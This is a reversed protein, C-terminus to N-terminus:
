GYFIKNKISYEYDAPQPHNQTAAKVSISNNNSHSSNNGTIQNQHLRYFLLVDDLIYFSFGSSIARKWLNLDERPIENPDYRNSEWFKKNYSVVPHAIVNHDRDLNLKIDTNSKINKNFTIVDEENFEEVYSFDSSVVDYGEKLKQLQLNLREPSYYDDLNTNFVFDCGDKFAEDIILNMAEAHNHCPHHYFDFNRFEPFFEKILSNGDSGYNIEYIKFDKLTQNMISEISKKIWRDKYINKVNQHFFIVGIKNEEGETKNNVVM